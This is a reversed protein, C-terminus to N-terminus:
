KLINPKNLNFNALRFDGFEIFDEVFPLTFFSDINVEHLDFDKYQWVGFMFGDNFQVLTKEMQEIVCFFMELPSTKSSLFWELVTVCVWEKKNIESRKYIYYKM